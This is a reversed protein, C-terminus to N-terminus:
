LLTSHKYQLDLMSDEATTAYGTNATAMKNGYVM